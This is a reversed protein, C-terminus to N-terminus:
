KGVRREESRPGPPLTAASKTASVARLAKGGSCHAASQRIKPLVPTMCATLPTATCIIILNQLVHFPAPSSDQDQQCQQQNRANDKIAQAPHALGTGFRQTQIDIGAEALREAVILM